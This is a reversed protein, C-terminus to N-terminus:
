PRPRPSAKAARLARACRWSEQAFPLVVLLLGALAVGLPVQWPLPEAKLQWRWDAPNDSGPLLARTADAHLLMVGGVAVWPLVLQWAHVWQEILPIERRSDAVRLDVWTTIEHAVALVLLLVIVASTVELLLVAFLGLGAEALMVLHLLSERLGTSHEIRQARHCAWDALGALLWLPLLVFLLAAGLATAQPGGLWNM